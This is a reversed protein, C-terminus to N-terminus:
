HLCCVCMNIYLYMYTGCRHIILVYVATYVYWVQTGTRVHVLSRVHVYIYWLHQIGVSNCSAAYRPFVRKSLFLSNSCFSFRSWFNASSVSTALWTIGYTTICHQLSVKDGFNGM